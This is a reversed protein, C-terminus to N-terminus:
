KIKRGPLPLGGNRWTGHLALLQDEKEGREWDREERKKKTRSKKEKGVGPPGKDKKEEEGVVGVSGIKGRKRDGKPDGGMNL